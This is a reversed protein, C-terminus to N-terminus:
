IEENKAHIPLGSQGFEWLEPCTFTIVAAAVSLAPNFLEANGGVVEVFCSDVEEWTVPHPPFVPEFSVGSFNPGTALTQLLNRLSAFKAPPGVSVGAGLALGAYKREEKTEENRVFFFNVGITAGVTFPGLSPGVTFTAGGPAAM